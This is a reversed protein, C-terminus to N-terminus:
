VNRDFGSDLDFVGFNLVNNVFADAQVFVLSRGDLLKQLMFKEGLVSSELQLKQASLVQDGILLVHDLEPQPHRVLPFLSALFGRVFLVLGNLKVEVQLRVVTLLDARIHDLGADEQSLLISFFHTLHHVSLHLAQELISLFADLTLLLM